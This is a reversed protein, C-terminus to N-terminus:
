RCFGWGGRSAQDLHLHDRHAANYDPSLTTAFIRCAGDRIERLFAAEVGRGSWHSAVGIRRGSRLRFAGIDIANASAHESFRGERSRGIRRCSYTGFTEFGAVPEGFYRASAPQVVQHEFLFLSAAMPCSMVTVPSYRAGAGARLRVGDDYGCPPRVHLAGAVAYSQGADTLLAQCSAFDEHLRGIKLVTFRGVPEALSLKGWPLDNPHGRSWEYTALVVAIAIVLLFLRCAITKLHMAAIRM